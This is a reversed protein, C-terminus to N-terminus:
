LFFLFPLHFKRLGDQDRNFQDWAQGFSSEAETTKEGLAKGGGFLVTLCVIVTKRVSFATSGSTLRTLKPM